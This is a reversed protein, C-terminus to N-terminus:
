QRGFAASPWVDAHNSQADIFRLSTDGPYKRMQDTHTYRLPKPRAYTVGRHEATAGVAFSSTDDKPLTIPMQDLTGSWIIPADLVAHTSPDLVAMRLTVTKGRINEALAISLVDTSVASLNFRLPKYEGPSDDVQEVSGLNGVGIYTNGGFVIDRSASALRVTETLAMEMLTVLVVESGELVTSASSAITRM